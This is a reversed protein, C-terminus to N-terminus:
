KDKMFATIAFVMCLVIGIVAFTRDLGSGFFWAAGYAVAAFSQLLGARWPNNTVAGACSLICAVAFM